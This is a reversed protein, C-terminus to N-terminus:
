PTGDSKRRRLVREPAAAPDPAPVPRRRIDADVRAVDDGAVPALPRTPPVFVEDTGHLMRDYTMLEISFRELEDHDGSGVPLHRLELAFGDYRGDPGVPEPHDVVTMAGFITGLDIQRRALGFAADWFTASQAEMANEKAAEWGPPAPAAGADWVDHAAVMIGVANAKVWAREAGSLTTSVEDPPVRLLAQTRHKTLGGGVTRHGDRVAAVQMYLLTIFGHLRATSVDGEPKSLPTPDPTRGLLYAGLRDGQDARRRSEGHRGIGSLRDQVLRPVM